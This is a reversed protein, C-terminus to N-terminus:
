NSGISRMYELAKVVRIRNVNSPALVMEAAEVASKFLEINPSGIYSDCWAVNIMISVTSPHRYGLIRKREKLAQHFYDLATAYEKKDSYFWGLGSKSSITDVDDEGLEKQRRTLINQLKRGTDERPAERDHRLWTLEAETYLADRVNIDLEKTQEVLVQELERKADNHKGQQQYCQGLEYKLALLRRKELISTVEILGKFLKEAQFVHGWYFAAWALRAASWRTATHKSGLIKSRNEYIRQYRNYKEKINEFTGAGFVDDWRIVKDRMPGDTGLIAKKSIWQQNQKFKIDPCMANFLRGLKTDLEKASPRRHPEKQLMAHIWETVETQFSPTLGEHFAISISKTPSEFDRVAWDNPFLPRGTCLEFIICGLAWIDVKGTYSGLEAIVEPARYGPTGRGERTPRM